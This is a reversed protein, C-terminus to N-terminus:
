REESEGGAEQFRRGRYQWAGQVAMSLAVANLAVRPWNGQRGDFAMWMLASASFLWYAAALRRLNMWMGALCTLSAIWSLVIM